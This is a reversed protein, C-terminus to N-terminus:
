LVEHNIYRKLIHIVQSKFYSTLAEDQKQRFIKEIVNARGTDFLHLLHWKLSEDEDYLAKGLRSLGRSHLLHQLTKKTGDWNLLGLKPPLWKLPQKMSYQLFTLQDESLTKYIKNLLGRDVIQRLDASLDYIGLLDVISLLQSRRLSLLPKLDSAPLAERSLVEVGQFVHKRFEDVLFPRMFSSYSPISFPFALLTCVEKAQKPSLLALFLPRVSAPLAHLPAAFWSFHISGVWESQSLLKTVDLPCAEEIEASMEPSLFEKLREGESSSDLLTRLLAKEQRRM